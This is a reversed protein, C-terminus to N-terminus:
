VGYYYFGERKMTLQQHRALPAQSLDTALMDAEDYRFERVNIVSAWTSRVQASTSSRPPARRSVNALRGRLVRLLSRLAGGPSSPM